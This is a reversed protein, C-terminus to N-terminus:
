SFRHDADAVAATVASRCGGTTSKRADLEMHRRGYRFPEDSEHQIQGAVPSREDAPVRWIEERDSWGISEVMRARSPDALMTMCASPLRVGLETALIGNDFGM